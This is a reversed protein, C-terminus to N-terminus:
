PLKHKSSRAFTPEVVAAEWGLAMWYSWAAAEPSAPTLPESAKQGLLCWAEKLDTVLTLPPASLAEQDQRAASGWFSIIGSRLAADERWITELQLRTVDNSALRALSLEKTVGVRIEVYNAALHRWVRPDCLKVVRFDSFADNRGAAIVVTFPPSSKSAAILKNKTEDDLKRWICSGVEVLRPDYAIQAPQLPARGMEQLLGQVAPAAPEEVPAAIAQGCPLVVCM